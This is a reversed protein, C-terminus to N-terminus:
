TPAVLRERVEVALATRSALAQAEGEALRRRDEELVQNYLLAPDHLVEEPRLGHLREVAPSVYTFRPQSGDPGSDIQYLM